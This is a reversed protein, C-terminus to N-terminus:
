LITQFKSFWFPKSETHCPSAARDYLALFLKLSSYWNDFYLIHGRDLYKGMLTMVISGSIGLESTRIIATTSETYIICRFVIKVCLCVCCFTRMVNTRKQREKRSCYNGILVTSVFSIYEVTSINTHSLHKYLKYNSSNKSPMKSNDAFHINYFLRYFDNRTMANAVAPTFLNRDRTWYDRIRPLKHFRMIFLIDLFTCM